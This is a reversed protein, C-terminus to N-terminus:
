PFRAARHPMMSSRHVTNGSCVSLSRLIDVVEVILDIEPDNFIDDPNETLVGEPLSIGRKKNKDRVCIRSISAHANVANRLVKYIGQGVTGFGFMGIRNEKEKMM